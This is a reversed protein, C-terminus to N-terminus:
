DNTRYEHHKNGGNLKNDFFHVLPGISVLFVLSFVHVQEFLLGTIFGFLVALLSFIGELLLKAASLNKIKENLIVLLMEYPSTTLKTSLTLAVGFALIIISAAALVIRFWLSGLISLQDFLYILWLDIFVGLVILFVFSVLVDWNRKVMFIIVLAITGTLISMTGLSIVQDGFILDNIFHTFFYNFGDIPSAGLQASVIGAIGLALIIFGLLHIIM